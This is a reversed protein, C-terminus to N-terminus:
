GRSKEAIQDMFPLFRFTIVENWLRVGIALFEYVGSVIVGLILPKAQEGGAEGSVLIGTTATAEPFPLKGHQELCFYRRL